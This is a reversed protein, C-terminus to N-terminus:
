DIKFNMVVTGKPVVITRKPTNENYFIEFKPVLWKNYTLNRDVVYEAVLQGPPAVEVEQIFTNGTSSSSRYYLGDKTKCMFYYNEDGSVSGCGLFFAGSLTTTNKLSVIETREQWTAIVAGPFPLTLISLLAIGASSYFSWMVLGCLLTFLDREEFLVKAWVGLGIVLLLYSLM